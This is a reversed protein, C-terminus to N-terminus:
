TCGGHVGHNHLGSWCEQDDGIEDDSLDYTSILSQSSEIGSLRRDRVKITM